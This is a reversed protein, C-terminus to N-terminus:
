EPISIRGAKMNRMERRNQGTCFDPIHLLHECLRDCLVIGHYPGRHNPTVPPPTSLRNHRKVRHAALLTELPCLAPSGVFNTYSM